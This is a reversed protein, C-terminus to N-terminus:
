RTNQGPLMTFLYNKALSRTWTSIGVIKLSNLSKFFLREHFPSSNNNRAIGTTWKVCLWILTVAPYSLGGGM